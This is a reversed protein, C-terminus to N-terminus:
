KDYYESVEKYFEKSLMISDSRIKLCGNPSKLKSSVRSSTSSRTNNALAANYNKLYFEYDEKVREFWIPNDVKFVFSQLFKHTEEDYGTLSMNKMKKYCSSSEFNKYKKGKPQIKGVNVVPNKKSLINKGTLAFFKIEGSLLDPSPDGDGRGGLWKEFKRSASHTDNKSSIAGKGYDRMIDYQDYGHSMMENILLTIKNLENVDNSKPNPKLRTSMFSKFKHKRKEAELQGKVILKQKKKSLRPM